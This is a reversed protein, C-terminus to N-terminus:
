LGSSCFLFLANGVLLLLNFRQSRFQLFHARLDLNASRPLLYDPNWLRADEPYDADGVAVLTAAPKPLALTKSKLDDSSRLNNEVLQSFTESVRRM